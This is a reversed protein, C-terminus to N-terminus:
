KIFNLNTNTMGTVQSALYKLESLTEVRLLVHLYHIRVPASTTETGDTTTKFNKLIQLFEEPKGNEFTDSKLKYTKSTASTPYWYMKIKIM